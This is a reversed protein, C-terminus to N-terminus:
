RMYDMLTPQIISAGTQLAAQYVAKAMSEMIAVEALDIDEVESLRTQYSLYEQEYRQEIMELRNDRGGLEAMKSLVSAQGDQLPQIHKNIDEATKTPDMLDNYLAELKAYLNDSGEGMVYAGTFTVETDLGYGIEFKIKQDKEAAIAPDPTPYMELGNYLLKGTAEDVKFPPNATNYGSLVYQEGVSANATQVLHGMMQKIYEAGAQRDQTTKADTAMDIATEYCNTMIANIDSMAGETTEIWKRASAISDQYQNIKSMKARAQMCTIVGVPDDSLKTIRKESAMQRQYKDLRKMNTNLNNLVSNTMMSNTVRMAM